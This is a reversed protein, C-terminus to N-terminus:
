AVCEMPNKQLWDAARRKPAPLSKFTHDRLRQDMAPQDEAKFQLKQQATILMSCRNTFRSRPAQYKVDCATYGGQSLIKSDEIDM